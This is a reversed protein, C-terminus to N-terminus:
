TSLAHFFELFLQVLLRRSLELGFLLGLFLGYLGGVDISDEPTMKSGISSCPKGSNGKDFGLSRLRDSGVESGHVSM